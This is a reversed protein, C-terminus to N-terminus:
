KKETDVKIELIKKALENAFGPISKMEDLMKVGQQILRMEYSELRFERLKAKGSDWAIRGDPLEVIAFEKKEGETLEIRKLIANAMDNEVMSGKPLKLVSMNLREAVSLILKITMDEQPKETKGM